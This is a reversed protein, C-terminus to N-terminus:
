KVKPKRYTEHRKEEELRGKNSEKAIFIKQYLKNM